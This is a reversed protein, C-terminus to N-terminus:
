CLKEQNDIEFCNYQPAKRLRLLALVAEPPGSARSKRALARFFEPRPLMVIPISRLVAERRVALGPEHETDAIM